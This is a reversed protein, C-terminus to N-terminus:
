RWTISHIKKQNPQMAPNLKALLESLGVTVVCDSDMKVITADTGGWLEWEGNGWVTICRPEGIYLLHNLEHPLYNRDILENHLSELRGPDGEIILYAVQQRRTCALTHQRTSLQAMIGCEIGDTM